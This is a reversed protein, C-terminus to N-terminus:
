SEEFSLSEAFMKNRKSSFHCNIKDLAPLFVFAWFCTIFDLDAATFTKANSCCFKLLIKIVIEQGSRGNATYKGTDSRPQKYTEKSLKLEENAM